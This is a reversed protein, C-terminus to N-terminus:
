NRVFYTLKCLTHCHSMMRRRHPFVVQMLHKIMIYKSGLHFKTVHQQQALTRKHTHSHAVLLSSALKLKESGDFGNRLIQTYSVHVCACVNLISVFYISAQQVSAYM